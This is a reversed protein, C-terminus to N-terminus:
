LPKNNLLTITNTFETVLDNFSPNDRRIKYPAKASISSVDLEIM